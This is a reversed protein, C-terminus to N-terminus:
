NLVAVVANRAIKDQRYSTLWDTGKTCLGDHEINLPAVGLQILQHKIIAVLDLAGLERNTFAIEGFQDFPKVFKEAGPQNHTFCYGCIGGTIYAHINPNKYKGTIADHAITVINKIPESSPNSPTMTPRGAHTILLQGSKQEYMVLTPCDATTIVAASGSQTLVVGEAFVDPQPDNPNGFKPTTITQFGQQSANSPAKILCVFDKKAGHLLALSRNLYTQNKGYLAVVAMMNISHVYTMMGVEKQYNKLYM